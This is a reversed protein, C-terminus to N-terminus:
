GLLSLQSPTLECPTPVNFGELHVLRDGRPSLHHAQHNLAFNHQYAWRRQELVEQIALAKPSLCMHVTARLLEPQAAQGGTGTGPFSCHLARADWLLLDGQQMAPIIGNRACEEKQRAAGEEGEGGLEVFWRHSGPAVAFGGSQESTGVIAVFGQVYERHTGGVAQGAPNISTEVMQDAHWWGGRTKWDAEAEQVDWPRFMSLCDLSTIMEEPRLDLVSGWASVVNPHARVRWAFQTHTVGCNCVLGLDGTDPWVDKGGWSNPDFRNIGTGLSSLWGWMGDLVDECEAVALAGACVVFGDRELSEKVAESGLELRPVHV